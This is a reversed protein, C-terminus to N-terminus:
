TTRALASPMQRIAKHGLIVAVIDLLPVKAFQVIGCILAAIAFPNTRRVQPSTNIILPGNSYSEPVGSVPM